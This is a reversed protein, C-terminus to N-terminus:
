RTRRAIILTVDDQHVPTWARAAALLNDYIVGVPAGASARPVQEVRKL